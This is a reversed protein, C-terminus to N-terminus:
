KGVTGCTDELVKSIHKGKPLNTKKKKENTVIKINNLLSNREAEITFFKEWLGRVAQENGNQIFTDEMHFLLHRLTSIESDEIIGLYQPLNIVEKYQSIRWKAEREAEELSSDFNILLFEDEKLLHKELILGYSEIQIDCLENLIQKENKSFNLNM